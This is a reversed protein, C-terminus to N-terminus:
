DRMGDPRLTRGKEAELAARVGVLDSELSAVVALAGDAVGLRGEHELRACLAAMRRAGLNTCSGLFSHAEREIRKADGRAAAARLAQLKGPALGLFADIVEVLLDGTPDIRRLSALVTRDIPGEGEEETPRAGATVGPTRAWRALVASLAEPGMPKSMYDDMGIDLCRQRDGEMASATMAVIPTRHRGAEARRIEETAGFGDLTPMHVDMFVADYVHQRCAAAAEVGDDAVDVRCGLKELTRVLVKQNVENDEAVLVRLGEVPRAELLTHRTVLPLKESSPRETLVQALCERLENEDFPKTLYASLGARAAEAGEGQQGLSTLLVLRLSPIAVDDRIVRALTLGDMGPMKMDLIGLDFPESRRAAERLARLASPGDQSEEVVLGWYALQQVLISRNTANDDVVLARRGSIDAMAPRVRQPEEADPLRATFWFTSGAGPRSSVGIEGGLLAVFQRSIALGLGTGGYRRTMSGDAQEFPQFIRAQAEPAIGIGTDRVEFRYLTPDSRDRGVRVSIEGKDTFKLANGVLNNLVQRLRGPDGHLAEPVDHHVLCVLELEKGHALTAFSSAIEQVTRRLDFDIAELVLRGAEIKSFDLLDNVVDILARGQTDIIHAYERQEASLATDLLLRAAGIVGHLPTRIEHSVNAVFQSKLRSAEEAARRARVLVDVSQAVVFAGAVRGEADLWPQGTWRLFVESGDARPLADEPHMVGEGSFVRAMEEAYRKALAPSVETFLRGTIPGPVGLYRIWKASHAIYRAEHDFLAVAVPAHEVVMRLRGREREVGEEARRRETIDRAVALFGVIGPTDVVLLASQGIWTEGSAALIPFECYTNPIRQAYQDRYFATAQDRYDPRIFDLYSRGLMESGDALGLLRLSGPNVYTFRGRSDTRYIADEATEVIERFAAESRVLERVRRRLALAWGLAGFALIIAVFALLPALPM